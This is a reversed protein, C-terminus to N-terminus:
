LNIKTDYEVGHDDFYTVWWKEITAYDSSEQSTLLGMNWLDETLMDRLDYKNTELITEYDEDTEPPLEYLRTKMWDQVIYDHGGSFYLKVLRDLDLENHDDVGISLIKIYRVLRDTAETSNDFSVWGDVWFDGGNHGNVWKLRFKNKPNKLTIPNTIEIFSPTDKIWDFDSEKLIKKILNKM